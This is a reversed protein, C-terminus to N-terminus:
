KSKKALMHWAVEKFGNVSVDQEVLSVFVM